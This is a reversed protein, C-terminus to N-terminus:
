VLHSCGCAKRMRYFGQNKHMVSIGWQNCALPPGPGPRTIQPPLSLYMSFILIMKWKGLTREALGLIKEWYRDGGGGGGCIGRSKLAMHLFWDKCVPYEARNEEWQGLKSTDFDFSTLWM